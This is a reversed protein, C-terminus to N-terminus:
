GIIEKPTTHPQITQHAQEYTSLRHQLQAQLQEAVVRLPAKPDIDRLLPRQAPNPTQQYRQALTEWPCHLYLTYTHTTLHHMNNHYCPTGGGTALVWPTPPTPHAHHTHRGLLGGLCDHEKQRFAAEGVQQIGAAISEWQQETCLVDDVDYHTYGLHKALAATLTSKGSM